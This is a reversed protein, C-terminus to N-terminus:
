LVYYHRKIWRSLRDVGPYIIRTFKEQPKNEAHIDVILFNGNYCSQEYIGIIM